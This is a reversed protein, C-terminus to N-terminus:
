GAPLQFDGIKKLTHAVYALVFCVNPKAGRWRSHGYRQPFRIRATVTLLDSKEPIEIGFSVATRDSEPV